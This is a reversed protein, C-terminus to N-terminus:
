QSPGTAHTVLIAERGSLPALVRAPGTFRMADVRLQRTDPGAEPTVQNFVFAVLGDSGLPADGLIAGVGPVSRGAFVCQLLAAGEGTPEIWITASLDGRTFVQVLSVRQPVAAAVRAVFIETEEVTEFPGELRILAQNAEEPAQAAAARASDERLHTWGADRMAAVVATDTTHASLCPAHVTDGDGGAFNFWGMAQGPETGLVLAAGLGAIRLIRRTRDGTMM